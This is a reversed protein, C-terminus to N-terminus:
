HIFTIEKFDATIIKDNSILQLKGNESLGTIKARILNNNFCYDRIENLYLLNELFETKITEIKKDILQNFRIEFNFCLKKLINEISYDIGTILKLSTPNLIEKPFETQNINIGVGIISSQINSGLIQNEILIGSIKNKGIYIDNPWKIKPTEDPLEKKLFDIIALTVTQNLIFQNLPNILNQPFYIISFTLNKGNESLWKNGKQGRGKKQNISWIITGNQINNEKLLEYAFDNTSDLTDYKLIKDISFLNTTM